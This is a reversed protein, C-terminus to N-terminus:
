GHDPGDNRAADAAAIEDDLRTLEAKADAYNGQHGLMFACVNTPWGTEAALREYDADQTPKTDAM